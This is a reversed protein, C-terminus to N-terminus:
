REVRNNIATGYGMSTNNVRAVTENIESISQNIDIIDQDKVAM